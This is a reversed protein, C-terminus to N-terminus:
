DPSLVSQEVIRAVFPRKHCGIEFKFVQEIKKGVTNRPPHSCSESVRRSPDPRTKEWNFVGRNVQTAALVRDAM